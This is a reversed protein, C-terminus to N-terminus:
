FNLECFFSKSISSAHSSGSSGRRDRKAQAACIQTASGQQRREGFGRSARAADRGHHNPVATRSHNCCAAESCEGRGSSCGSCCQQLSLSLNKTSFSLHFLFFFIKFIVKRPVLRDHNHEGLRLVVANNRVHVRAKCGEARYRRCSWFGTEEDSSMKHFVYLFGQDEKM